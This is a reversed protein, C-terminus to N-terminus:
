ARALPSSDSAASALAPRGQGGPGLWSRRPSRFAAPAAPGPRPPDGRRGCRKGRRPEPPPVGLLASFTLPLAPRHPAPLLSLAAALYTFSPPLAPPGPDPSLPSSVSPSAAASFPALSALSRAARAAPRALLSGAGRPPLAALRLQAGRGPNLCRPPPPVSSPAGPPRRRPWGPLPGPM